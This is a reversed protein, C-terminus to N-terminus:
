EEKNEEENKSENPIPQPGEEKVIRNYEDVLPQVRKQEEQTEQQARFAIQKLKMDSRFFISELETIRKKRDDSPSTALASTNGDAM